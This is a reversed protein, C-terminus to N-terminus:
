CITLVLVLEEVGINSHMHMFNYVAAGAAGILLSLTAGVLVFLKKRTKIYLGADRLWTALDM